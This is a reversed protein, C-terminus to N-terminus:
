KINKTLRVIEEHIKGNSAVLNNDTIQWDQGQWNTVRGGAERILLVGVLVDWPHIEALVCADAKGSAVASLEVGASSFFRFRLKIIDLKRFLKQYRKRGVSSHGTCLLFMSQEMTKTDSVKIKKGNCWAGKNKETYYVEKVPPLGIAGLLIEKKNLLSLCTAFELFGYAFNTTGDLPDIYWTKTGPNDIKKAEESIIDYDPFNKLLKATIYKNAELDANTVIEQHKKFQIQGNGTRQFRKMLLQNVQQTIQIAIKLEKTMFLLQFNIFNYLRYLGSPTGEPNM